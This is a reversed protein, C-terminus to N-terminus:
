RAKWEDLLSIIIETIEESSEHEFYKGLMEEKMVFQRKKPTQLMLIEWILAKDLVGEDFSEHLRKAQNTSVKVKSKSIIECVNDQLIDNLYSIQIGQELGLIKEDVMDLLEDNLYSLRLFRKVTAASDGTGEGIEDVTHKGKIGNHRKIADSKMRYARAKESPLLTERQYFNADAMMVTAEDDTVDVVYCPMESLGAKESAFCRRHGSIIQYGGNSDRRVVAPHMVGRNKISDSLSQMADDDKVKFPHGPFAHLESLKIQIQALKRTDPESQALSVIREDGAAQEILDNYTAMNKIRSFKERAM